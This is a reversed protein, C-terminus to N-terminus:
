LTQAQAKWDPRQGPMHLESPMDEEPLHKHPLRGHHRNIRDQQKAALDLDDVLAAEDLHAMM